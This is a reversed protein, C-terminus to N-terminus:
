PAPDTQSRLLVIRMTPKARDLESILRGNQARVLRNTLALGLGSHENGHDGQGSDTVQIAASSSDAIVSLTTPGAGHKLANDLLADLAQALLRQNGVANCAATGSSLTLSRGVAVFKPSWRHHIERITETVDVTTAHASRENRAFALIDNVTREFRAVDELSERVIIQHDDRPFALETELAARLGAIPTRLQHSVDASFAQERDVLEGLQQATATLADGVEDLEAIGTAPANLTFDGNGLRVAADRLTQTSTAITRALRRAIMWGIGLVGLAGVILFALARKTTADITALSRQARVFGVLTEGSVIPLTTVLNPGQETTRDATSSKSFSAVVIFEPGSGAIRIGKADYLAFEEPGAPFESADPVDTKDTLDINSAALAARHELAFVAREDLLRELVFGLPVAFLLMVVTTVTM